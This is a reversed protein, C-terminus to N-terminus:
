YGPEMSMACNRLWRGLNCAAVVDKREVTTSFRSAAYIAAIRLVHWPLRSGIKSHLDSCAKMKAAHRDEWLQHLVRAERTLVLYGSSGAMDQMKRFGSQLRRLVPEPWAYGGKGDQRPGERFINLRPILGSYWDSRRTTRLIEDDPGMALLTVGVKFARREAGSMDSKNRPQYMGDYVATWFAAGEVMYAMRNNGFWSAAETVRVIPYPEDILMQELAGRGGESGRIRKEILPMAADIALTSSYTKKNDSPGILLTWLFLREKRYLNGDMVYACCIPDLIAGLVTVLSAVHYIVPARTLKEAEHVYYPIIGEGPVILPLPIYTEATV